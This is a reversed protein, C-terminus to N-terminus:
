RLSRLRDQRSVIEQIRVGYNGEVVVVEGRAVLCHNVLVEVPESIARDLEVISGTTLKLVDKMPLRARGFSITIPLEVELLLEMTRSVPAGKRSDAAEERAERAPAPAAADPTEILAVLAPSLGVLLPLPAPPDGFNLTVSAWAQPVPAPPREVGPGATIERGVIAGASRAMAALSQGLIEIWTNRAEANEVTELGAARLTLTGAQQWTATEAAVWAVSGPAEPFPQEWWLLDGGASVESPIESAAQWHVEPRRDTMSELVQALSEIWQDLLQRVNTTPFLDGSMGDARRADGAM